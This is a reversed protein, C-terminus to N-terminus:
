AERQREEIYVCETNRGHGERRIKGEEELEKLARGRTRDSVKDGKIKRFSNHIHESKMRDRHQLRRLIRKKLEEM